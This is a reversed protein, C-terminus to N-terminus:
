FTYDYYKDRRGVIVPNNRTRYKGKRLTCKIEYGNPDEEYKYTQCDSLGNSDIRTAIDYKFWFTKGSDSVRTITGAKRDTFFCETVGMGVIPKEKIAAIMVNSIINNTM